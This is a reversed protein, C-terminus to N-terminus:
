SCPTITLELDQERLRAKLQEIQLIVIQRVQALDLGHFVVIEDVRNVFEPRFHKSIIETLMAKITTYDEKPTLEKIIDSGLNSTM